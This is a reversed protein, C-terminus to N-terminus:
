LFGEIGISQLMKQKESKVHIAKTLISKVSFRLPLFNGSNECHAVTVAVDIKLAKLSLIKRAEKGM